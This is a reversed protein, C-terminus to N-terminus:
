FLEFDDEDQQSVSEKTFLSEIQLCTSLLSSDLYHIDNAEQLVFINHRWTEIDDLLSIFLLSFKKIDSDAVGDVELNQLFTMLTRLAYAFHEFEYLQEVVLVYEDLLHAIKELLKKQPHEEFSIAVTEIDFKLTELNEIKDMLAVATNQVYEDATTKHFHTKSLISEAYDSLEAKKIEPEVIVRNKQLRFCLHSDQLIFIAGQYHKLIINQIALDTIATTLMITLYLNEDNEEAIITFPLEKKLSYQAYAYVIRVCEELESINYSSQNLYYDWFEAIARDSRINFKLSRAYVEQSFPNIADINLPKAKRLEIIQLYNKMRQHFLGEEIPKTIYDEAGCSLMENKSDEDDLASLALIMTKRNFAKIQKTAEMGNLKPMMIDMLILDFHERYAMEIAEIGNKAEKIELSDFEELLLQLTLRNNKDDDVILLKTM